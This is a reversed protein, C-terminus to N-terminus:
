PHRPFLYVMVTYFGGQIICWLLLTIVTSIASDSSPRVGLFHSFREDLSKYDPNTDRRFWRWIMVLTPWFTIVLWVYRPFFWYLVGAIIFPLLVLFGVFSLCGMAGGGLLWIGFMAGLCGSGFAQQNAHQRAQQERIYREEEEPSLM